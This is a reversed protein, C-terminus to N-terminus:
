QSYVLDLCALGSVCGHARERAKGWALRLTLFNPCESMETM